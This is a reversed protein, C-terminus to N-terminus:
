PEISIDFGQGTSRNLTNPCLYYYLHDGSVQKPWGEGYMLPVDFLSGKVNTLTSNSDAIKRRSCIWLYNGDAPNFLQHTGFIDNLQYKTAGTFPKNSFIYDHVDQVENSPIFVIYDYGDAIVNVTFSRLLTHNSNYIRIVASRGASNPMAILTGYNENVTVVSTDSSEFTLSDLDWDTPSYEVTRGNLLDILVKYERNNYDVDGIKLEQKPVMTYESPVIISKIDEPYLKKTNVYVNVDGDCGQETRSVLTFVNEYDVTITRINDKSYGPEFIKAVIVLKYTGTYLQAQAPFFVKVKNKTETAEVPALFRCRDYDRQIDMHKYGAAMFIDNMDDNRWTHPEHDHCWERPGFCGQDFTHVNVGYGPYVPVYMMPHHHFCPRGAGCIDYPTPHFGFLPEVPFRSVYKIRDKRREIENQMLATERYQEDMLDHWKSVNILYANISNINVADFNKNGLLNVYLCIDNGIRVKM